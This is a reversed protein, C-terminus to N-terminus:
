RELPDDWFSRESEELIDARSLGIDKLIEDSLSALQRRQHALERWRRVKLGIARWWNRGEPQQRSSPLTGVFGLQGKM